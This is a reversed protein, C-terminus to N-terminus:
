RFDFIRQANRGRVPERAGGGYSAIIKLQQFRDFFGDYIM